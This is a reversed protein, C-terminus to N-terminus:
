GLPEDGLRHWGDKDRQWMREGSNETLVVLENKGFEKGYTADFEALTM